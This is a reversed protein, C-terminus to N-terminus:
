AQKSAAPGAVPAPAPAPAPPRSPGAVSVRNRGEKKAQYLLQDAEKILSDWAAGPATVRDVTSVGLSITAGSPLDAFQASNVAARMREAVEM